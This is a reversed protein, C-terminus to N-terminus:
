SFSPNAWINEKSGVAQPQRTEQSEPQGVQLSPSFCSAPALLPAEEKGTLPPLDCDAVDEVEELVTNITTRVQAAQSAYPAGGNASVATSTIIEDVQEMDLQKM